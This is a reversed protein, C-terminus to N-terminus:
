EIGAASEDLAVQFGAFELDAVVDRAADQTPMRAGACQDRQEAAGPCVLRQRDALRKQVRLPLFQAPLKEAL